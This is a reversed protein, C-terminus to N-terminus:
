QAINTAGVCLMQPRTATASSASIFFDSLTIATGGGGGGGGMTRLDYCKIHDGCPQTNQEDCDAPPDVENKVSGVQLTGTVPTCVLRLAGLTVTRTSFADTLSVSATPTAGSGAYCEYAVAANTGIGMGGAYVATTPVALLAALVMSALVRHITM